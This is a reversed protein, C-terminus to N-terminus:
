PRNIKLSVRSFSVDGNVPLDGESGSAPKDITLKWYLYKGRYWLPWMATLDPRTGAAEHGVETTTSQCELYHKITTQRSWLIACNGSATLPDHPQASVGIELVLEPPDADLTPRFEAVFERVLKDLDPFGIDIAGSVIESKYGDESYQGVSATYIPWAGDDDYEGAAAPNDCTHRYYVDACLEKLCYDASSAGIFVPNSPCQQCLDDLRLGSLVTCLSNASPSAETWDEMTITEGNVEVDRTVDTYLADPTITCVGASDATRPQGEKIYSGADAPDCICYQIMFDRLTMRSERTHNGYASFGHDLFGAVLYQMNAVLTYGPLYESERAWSFFVEKTSPNFGAVHSQCCDANIDDFIAVAASHLWELREPKSLSLNFLYIADNGMYIHSDGLSVLTNPYFLCSAGSKPESYIKRFNLIEEGGVATVQWIGKTTYILLYEGLEAAGLIREGQDLLQRSAKTGVKGPDFSLPQEYDSWILGNEFRQGGLEYDALFVLGRWSWLTGVAGVYLDDLDPISRLAQMQCGSPGSGIIWYQPPDYNNSFIATDILQASKWRRINCGLEFAGGWGDAIVQWNKTGTSYKYLRSSTGAVLHRLGDTGIFEQIMTVPERLALSRTLIDGYCVTPFDEAETVVDDQAHTIPSQSAFYHLLLLLQDHLDENNYGAVLATGAAVYVYDGNETADTQSGLYVRKGAAMAVGGISTPANAIDVNSSAIADFTDDYFLKKWGPSRALKNKAPVHFNLRNRVAGQPMQDPDSERDLVGTMPKYHLWLSKM